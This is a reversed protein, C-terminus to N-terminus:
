FTGEMDENLGQAPTIVRKGGHMALFTRGMTINVSM